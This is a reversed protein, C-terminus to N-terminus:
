HLDNCFGDLFSRYALCNLTESYFHLKTTIAPNIDNLVVRSLGGLSKPYLLYCYGFSPLIDAIPGILTEADDSSIAHFMILACARELANSIVPGVQFSAQWGLTIWQSNRARPASMFFSAIGGSDCQAYLFLELIFKFARFRKQAIASEESNIGRILNEYIKRATCAIVRLVSESLCTRLSSPKQFLYHMLDDTRPPYCGLLINHVSCFPRAVHRWSKLFNLAHHKQLSSALCQMCVFDAITHPIIWIGEPASVQFSNKEGNIKAYNNFAPDRALRCFIYKDDM